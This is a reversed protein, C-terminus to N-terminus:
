TGLMERIKGVCEDRSVTTQGAKGAAVYEERSSVDKRLRRGARLDKVAV